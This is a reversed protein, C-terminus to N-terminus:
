DCAHSHSIHPLDHLAYIIGALVHICIERFDGVEGEESKGERGGQGGTVNDGGEIRERGEGGDNGQATELGIKRGVGGEEGQGEKARRGRGGSGRTLPEPIYGGSIKSTILHAYTSKLENQLQVCLEADYNVIPKWGSSKVRCDTDCIGIGTGVNNKGHPDV